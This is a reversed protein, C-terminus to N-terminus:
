WYIRFAYISHIEKEIKLGWFCWNSQSRVLHHLDVIVPVNFYFSQMLHQQKIPLKLSLLASFIHYCITNAFIFSRVAFVGNYVRFWDIFLSLSKTFSYVIYLLLNLHAFLTCIRSVLTNKHNSKRLLKTSSKKKSNSRVTYYQEWKKIWPRLKKKKVSM